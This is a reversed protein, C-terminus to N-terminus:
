LNFNKQREKGKREKKIKGKITKRHQLGRSLTARQNPCKFPVKRGFM